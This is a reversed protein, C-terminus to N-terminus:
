AIDFTNRIELKKAELESDNVAELCAQLDEMELIEVHAGTQATVMTFDSYM